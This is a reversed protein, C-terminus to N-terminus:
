FLALILFVDRLEVPSRRVTCLFHLNVTTGSIWNINLTSRSAM